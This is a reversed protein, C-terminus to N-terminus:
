SSIDVLNKFSLRGKIRHGNVWTHLLDNEKPM